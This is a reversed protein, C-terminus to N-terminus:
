ISADPLETNLLSDGHGELLAAPIESLSMAEKTTITGPLELELEGTTASHGDIKTLSPPGPQAAVTKTAIEQGISPTSAVAVGSSALVLASSIALGCALQIALSIKKNHM